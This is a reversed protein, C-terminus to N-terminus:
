SHYYFRNETNSKLFAKMKGNYTMLDTIIIKGGKDAPFIKIAPNLKLFQNTRKM